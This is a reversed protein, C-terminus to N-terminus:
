GALARRAGAPYPAAEVGLETMQALYRRYARRAEGHRGTTALVRCLLLHAGEDFADRELIRLLLGVAVDHEGADIAADALARIVRLYAARAEERPMAAWDEYADEELFDGRYMSEALRLRALRAGGGAAAEAERLFRELDLDLHTTVLWAASGNAAVFHDPRYRKGPDLVSRVTSLAVSLRRPLRAPAEDPWLIDILLDRPTPQGRRAALIKLLDRAKRSGWASRPVPRGALLVQFTGLTRIELGAAGGSPDAAGLDAVLEADVRRVGAARLRLRAETARETGTGDGGLLAATLDVRAVGIPNDVDRWISRAEELRAVGALRDDSALAGLETAEALAVRDRRARALATADVAAMRAAALDGRRLAVWGAALLARSQGLVPGRAIAEAALASARDPEEDVLVRALGALSPVLGQLDGAPEAVAIAEEYAARALVLDGRERHVDGLHSLPYSILRSELRQYLTKAAELDVVAEDLRGLRVLAEGRNSLALARFAAFGALDALGIAIDLEGLAEHCYGEESFRSGRNVRIRIAQLADGAREAHDLARLYHADNARRDSDVAALMALVTHAAALAADDAAASAVTLAESALRRCDDIEGKLWLAGAWWARVLAENPLDTGDLRGRRYVAVAADLDGRLHHILGMRWAVGPPIPGPAAAVRRYCALAADWDGLAQRAAGELEDVIAARPGGGIAAVADVVVDIEGSAVLGAGDRLLLDTLTERAGLVAYQAVAARLAGHSALWAAGTMRVRRQESPELPAAAIVHEAVLPHVEYWDDEGLPRVFLGRRELTAVISSADAIGLDVVMGPTFREFVSAVQLLRRSPGDLRGFAEEALYRLVPGGPRLVRKLTAAWAAPPAPLVAEAALRVAAPWGGTAAHLTAAIGEVPGDLWIGLARATEEESFALASGTLEVAQGQGRLRAIPFPLDERSAVVLHLLPPAGLCLAEILRAAADDPRLEDIDDLVLVLERTLAAELADCLIAAHAQARLALDAGADPGRLGGLPRAVAPAITPVRLRIADVLGATLAGLERDSATLSYWACTRSTAWDALLTSKGFGAGAVVVTLRRRAGDDLRRELSPRAITPGSPPPPVARASLLGAEGATM